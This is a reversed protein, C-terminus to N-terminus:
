EEDRDAAMEALKRRNGIRVQRRGSIAGAKRLAALSRSFTEPRIGLLNAILQHQLELPRNAADGGHELLFLAVRSTAPGKARTAEADTARVEKLALDLLAQSPSIRPGLWASFSSLALSCVEVDGAATATARHPQGRSIEVDLLSGAPRLTQRALTGEADLRSLLVLGRKLFHAAQPPDGQRFFVHGAPFSARLFACHGGRCARGLACANCAISEM